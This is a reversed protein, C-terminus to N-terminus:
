SFESQINIRGNPRQVTHVYAMNSVNRLYVNGGDEPYQVRFYELYELANAISDVDVCLFILFLILM